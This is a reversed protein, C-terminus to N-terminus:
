VVALCLSLTATAHNRGLPIDEVEIYRTPTLQPTQPAAPCARLSHLQSDAKNGPRFCVVCGRAPSYHHIFGLWTVVIMLVGWGYLV